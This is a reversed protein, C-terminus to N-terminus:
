EHRPGGSQEVARRYAFYEDRQRDCLQEWCRAEFRWRRIELWAIVLVVAIGLLYVENM